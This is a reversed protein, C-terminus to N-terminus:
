SPEDKDEMGVGSADLGSFDSQGGVRRAWGKALPTHEPCLDWMVTMSRFPNKQTPNGLHITESVRKLRQGKGTRGMVSCGAADCTRINAM